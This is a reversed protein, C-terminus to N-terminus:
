LRLNAESFVREPRIIWVWFLGMARRIYRAEPIYIRAKQAGDGVFQPGSHKPAREPGRGRDELCGRSMPRRVRDGVLQPSAAPRAAVWEVASARNSTSFDM